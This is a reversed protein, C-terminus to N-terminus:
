KRLLNTAKVFPRYILNRKVYSTFGGITSKPLPPTGNASEDSILDLQSPWIEDRVYQYLEFDLLNRERILDKHKEVLENRNYSKSKAVNTKKALYGSFGNGIKRELIRMSLDFDETFGIWFFRNLWDKALEVDATGCVTKTQDNQHKEINAWSEFSDSYGFNEVHHIFHSAYRHAPNRMITLWNVPTSGMMNLFPRVGHGAISNPSWYIWKDIKLDSDRYIEQGNPFRSIADMHRVGFERRLIQSFSNGGTKRLHCFAYM